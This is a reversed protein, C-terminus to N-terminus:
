YQLFLDFIQQTISNVNTTIEVEEALLNMVRDWENQIM